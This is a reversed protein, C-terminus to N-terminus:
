ARMALCNVWVVGRHTPRADETLWTRLLALRPQRGLVERLERETYDNFLRMGRIHEGEGTKFSLYWGGGPRLARVCRAFVEEIEVRPVHLLSACAWLGDFEERHEMEQFRRVAVPIGARESARRAMEASADFATVRYGRQLFVRADRGVGCGTDLIHGGEAVLTLFPAYQPEM